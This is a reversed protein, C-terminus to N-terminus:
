SCGFSWPGCTSLSYTAPWNKRSSDSCTAAAAAAAAAADADADAPLLLLLTLTLTLTLPLLLSLPLTLTLPLPLLTLLLPLLPVSKSFPTEAMSSPSSLDCKVDCVEACGCRFKRKTDSVHKASLGRGDFSTLSYHFAELDLDVRLFVTCPCAAHVLLFAPPRGVVLGVGQGV